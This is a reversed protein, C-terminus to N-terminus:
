FVVVFTICVSMLPNVADDQKGVAIEEPEIGEDVLAQDTANMM